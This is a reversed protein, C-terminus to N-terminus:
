KCAGTLEFECFSTDACHAFCLARYTESLAEAGRAVKRYKLFLRQYQPDSSKSTEACSKLVSTYLTLVEAIKHLSDNCVQAPTPHQLVWRPDKLNRRFTDTYIVKASHQYAEDAFGMLREYEHLVTKYQYLIDEKQLFAVDFFITIKGTEESVAVLADVPSGQELLDLRPIVPTKLKERLDTLDLPPADAPYEAELTEVLRTALEGWASKYEGGGGGVSSGGDKGAYAPLAALFLLIFVPYRFWM